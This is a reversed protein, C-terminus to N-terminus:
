LLRAIDLDGEFSMCAIWTLSRSVIYTHQPITSFIRLAKEIHKLIVSYAEDCASDGIFIPNESTLKQVEEALYSIALDSSSRGLNMSTELKEWAVKSVSFPVIDNITNVLSTHDAEPLIAFKINLANLDTTVEKDYYNM